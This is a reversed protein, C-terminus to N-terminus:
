KVAMYVSETAYQLSPLTAPLTSNSTTYQCSGVLSPKLTTGHEYMPVQISINWEGTAPGAWFVFYYEDGATMTFPALADFWLMEGNPATDYSCPGSQGILNGLNDYVGMQVVGQIGDDHYFGFKSREKTESAVVKMSYLQNPNSTLNVLKTSFFLQFNEQITAPIKSDVYTKTAKETPLRNDTPDDDISTVIEQVLPQQNGPTQDSVLRIPFNFSSYTSTFEKKMTYGANNNLGVKFYYRATGNMEGIWIHSDNNKTTAMSNFSGNSCYSCPSLNFGTANLLDPNIGSMTPGWWTTDTALATLAANESGYVETAWALLQNVEDISPLHWGSPVVWSNLSGASYYAGLSWGSQSEFNNYDYVNNFRYAHGESQATTSSVFENEAGGYNFNATMWIQSGFRKFPYTQGDRPDTWTGENQVNDVIQLSDKIKFM